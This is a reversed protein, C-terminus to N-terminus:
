RFLERLAALVNQMLGPSKEAWISCSAHRIIRESTHGLLASAARTRSHTSLVVLDLGDEHALRPVGTHPSGEAVRARVRPPGEGLVRRAQDDALQEFVAQLRRCTDEWSAIMHHGPPVEFLHLLTVEDIGLKAALWAARRLALDSGDSFDTAVGLRRFEGRFEPTVVLVSVPAYRLIRDAVSGLRGVKLGGKGYRGVVILDAGVQHAVRLVEEAPTGRRVHATAWGLGNSAAFKEFEERAQRDHADILGPVAREVHENVPEFAFVAHLSAGLRRALDQAVLVGGVSEITLGTAVLITKIERPRDALM